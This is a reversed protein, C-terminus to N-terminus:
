RTVVRWFGELCNESYLIHHDSEYAIQRGGQFMPPSPLPTWTTPSSEPASSYPQYGKDSRGTCFSRSTFITTGDGTISTSAFATAVATWTVGSDTSRLLKPDSGVYLSGDKAHYFGDSVGGDHVKKWSAGANDTRSIGNGTMWLWTKSDVMPLGSGEGSDPANEVVAWSTGGDKSELICSNSHGNQCSFHPATIVHLHNTPDLSIRATFGGYVFVQLVDPPYAQDWDVGGNTSKWVGSPGYGAVTFIINPDVPDIQITWQRGDDLMKGNRGSNIHAWTAGCDTTKYLGQSSTGVYVTGSSQPDLVFTGIGFNTGAPTKFAPDLSVQPPTIPEWTGVAGLKDCQGVVHPASGGADGSGAGGALGGTGSSGSATGGTGGRGATGAAPMGGSGASAMGGAVNAASGGSGTAGGGRAMDGSSGPPNDDNPADAASGCGAGVSGMALGLIAPACWSTCM